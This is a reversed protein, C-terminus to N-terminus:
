LNQIQVDFSFLPIKLKDISGIYSNYCLNCASLRILRPQITMQLSDGILKCLHVVASALRIIGTKRDSIHFQYPAMLSRYFFTIEKCIPFHDLQRRFALANTSNSTFFAASGYFWMFTSENFELDDATFGWAFVKLNEEFLEVVVINFDRFWNAIMQADNKTLEQPWILIIHNSDYFNSILLNVGSPLSDASLWMITLRTTPCNPCYKIEFDPDQPHVCIQLTPIEFQLHDQVYQVFNITEPESVIVMLEAGLQVIALQIFQALQVLHSSNM